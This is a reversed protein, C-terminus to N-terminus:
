NNTKTKIGSKVVVDDQYTTFLEYKGTDKVKGQKLIDSREKSLKSEEEQQQKLKNELEQFTKSTKTTVNAVKLLIESLQNFLADIRSLNKSSLNTVKSFSDLEKILNNIEQEAKSNDKFGGKEKLQAFTGKSQELKSQLEVIIKEAM